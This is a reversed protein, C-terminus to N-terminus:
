PTPYRDTVQWDEEAKAERGFKTAASRLADRLEHLSWFEVGNPSRTQELAAVVIDPRGQLLKEVQPLAAAPNAALSTRCARSLALVVHRRHSSGDFKSLPMREGFSAGLTELLGKAIRDSSIGPDDLTLLLSRSSLDNMCASLAPFRASIPDGPRLNEYGLWPFMEVISRFRLKASLTRCFTILRRTSGTPAQEVRLSNPLLRLVGIGNGAIRLSTDDPARMLKPRVKAARAAELIARLRNFTVRGSVDFPREQERGLAEHDGGDAAGDGKDGAWPEGDPDSARVEHGHSGVLAGGDATEAKGTGFDRSGPEARGPFSGQLQEAPVGDSDPDAVQGRGHGPDASRAPALAVGRGEHDSRADDQRGRDDRPDTARDAFPRGITVEDSRGTNNIDATRRAHDNTEQTIRNILDRHPLLVSLLLQVRVKLRIVRLLAAFRFCKALNDPTLADSLFKGPVAGNRTEGDPGLQFLLGPAKRGFPNIWVSVPDNAEALASRFEPLTTPQRAIMVTQITAMMRARPGAALRRAPAPMRLSPGLGPDFYIPPDIGLYACTAIDAAECRTKMGSLEIQRGSFTRLVVLIHVHDCPKDPHRVMQWPVELIPIGLKALGITVLERWQEDSLWKGKPLSFTVHVTQLPRADTGLAIRPTMKVLYRALDDGRAAPLTGGIIPPHSGDSM